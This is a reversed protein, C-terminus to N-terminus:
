DELDPIKLEQGPYISDPDDLLDRNAEFIKMYNSGNGYHTESIKWLTDGPQVTHTNMADPTSEDNSAAVESPGPQSVSEIGPIEVPEVKVPEVEGAEVQIPKEVNMHDNVANIGDIGKLIGPIRQRDHVSAVTGSVTVTGDSGFSIKLGSPDIGNERLVESPSVTVDPEPQKKGGLVNKLSDLIGM